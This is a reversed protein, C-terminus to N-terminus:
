FVHPRARRGGGARDSGWPVNKISVCTRVTSAPTHVHFVNPAACRSKRATACKTGGAESAVRVTFM